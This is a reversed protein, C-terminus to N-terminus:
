GYLLENEYIKYADSYYYNLTCKSNSINLYM